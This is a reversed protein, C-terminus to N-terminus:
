PPRNILLGGRRSPSQQSPTRASYSDGEKKGDYVGRYDGRLPSPKNTFRRKLKPVAPEADEGLLQGKRKSRRIL